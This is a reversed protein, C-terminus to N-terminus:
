DLGALLILVPTTGGYQQNPEVLSKVALPTIRPRRL